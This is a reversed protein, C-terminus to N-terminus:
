RQCNMETSHMAISGCVHVDWMNHKEEMRGSGHPQMMNNIETIGARSLIPLDPLFMYM